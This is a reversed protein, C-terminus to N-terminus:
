TASRFAEDTEARQEAREPRLGGELAAEREGEARVAARHFGGGGQFGAVQQARLKGFALHGAADFIRSLCM